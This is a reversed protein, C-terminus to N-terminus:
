ICWATFVFVKYLSCLSAFFWLGFRNGSEEFRIAPAMLVLGPMLAFSVVIGSLIFSPVGIGIAKWEGLIALWIGSTIAGFWNLITIPYSLAAVIAILSKM